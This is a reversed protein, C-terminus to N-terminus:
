TCTGCTPTATVWQSPHRGGFFRPNNGDFWGVGNNSYVHFMFWRFFPTSPSMYHTTAMASGLRSLPTLTSSVTAMTTSVQANVSANISEQVEALSESTVSQMQSLQEEMSARLNSTSSDVEVGM